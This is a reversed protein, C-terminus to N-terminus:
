STPLSQNGARIWSLEVPRTTGRVFCRLTARKGAAVTVVRDEVVIHPVVTGMLDDEVILHIREEITGFPSTSTCVYVGSDSATVNSIEIVARGESETGAVLIPAGSHLQHSVRRWILNSTQDGNAECELRVKENPRVRYPSSQLIKVTPAGQIRLVAQATVRGAINEATCIYAGDEDGTVRNFRLVGDLLETSPTFLSGDSRRWEVTPTPVGSTVRCQFLASGGRVVTQSSEPYIQIAPIER